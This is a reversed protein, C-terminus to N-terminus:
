SVRQGCCYGLKMMAADITSDFVESLKTCYKYVRSTKKNYLWANDFMLRMDRCFQLYSLSVCTVIPWEWVDCVVSLM